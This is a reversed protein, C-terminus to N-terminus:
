TAPDSRWAVAHHGSTAWWRGAAFRAPDAAEEYPLLLAEHSTYIPAGRGGPLPRPERRHRGIAYAGPDHAASGCTRVAADFSSETSSIAAIPPCHQAGDHMEIMARQAAQRVARRNAGGRDITRGRDRRKLRQRWRTSCAPLVQWRSRLRIALAKRATAARFSSAAARGGSTAM